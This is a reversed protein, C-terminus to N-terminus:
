TKPRFTKNCKLSLHNHALLRTHQQFLGPKPPIRPRRWASTAALHLATRPRLVLRPSIPWYSDQILVSTRGSPKFVSWQEVDNIGWRVFHSVVLVIRTNCNLGWTNGCCGSILTQCSAVTVFSIWIVYGSWKIILLKNHTFDTHLFPNDLSLLNFGAASYIRCMLIHM